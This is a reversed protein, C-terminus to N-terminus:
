DPRHDTSDVRHSAGAHPRCLARHRDHVPRNAPKLRGDDRHQHGPLQGAAGVAIAGAGARQEPDHGASQGVALLGPRQQRLIPRRELSFRFQQWLPHQLAADRQQGCLLHLLRHHLRAHRRAHGARGWSRFYSGSCRVAKLSSSGRTSCSRTASPTAKDVRTRAPIGRGPPTDGGTTARTWWSRRTPYNQM